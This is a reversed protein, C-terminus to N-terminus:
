FCYIRYVDLLESYINKDLNLSQFATFDISNFVDDIFKNRMIIGLPNIIQEFLHVNIRSSNFCSIIVKIKLLM